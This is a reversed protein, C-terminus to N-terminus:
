LSRGAGTEEIIDAPDPTAIVQVEDSALKGDEDELDMKMLLSTYSLLEPPTDQDGQKLSDVDMFGYMGPYIWTCDGEDIMAYRYSQDVVTVGFDLSEVTYHVRVVQTSYRAQLSGLLHWGDQPGHVMTVPDGDQLLEFGDEGTGVEVQAPSACSDGSDDAVGDGTEGSGTCGLLGLPLLARAVM